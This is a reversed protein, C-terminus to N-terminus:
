AKADRHPVEVDCDPVLLDHADILFSRISSDKIPVPMDKLIWESFLRFAEPVEMLFHILSGGVVDADKKSFKEDDSSTTLEIFGIASVGDLPIGAAKLAQEMANKMAEPIQKSM